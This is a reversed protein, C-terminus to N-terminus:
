QANVVFQYDVSGYNAPTLKAAKGNKDTGDSWDRHTLRVTVLYLGKMGPYAQITFGYRGPCGPCEKATAMMGNGWAMPLKDKALAAEREKDTTFYNIQYMRVNPRINEIVDNIQKYVSNKVGSDTAVKKMSLIGSIFFSGVLTLMALGLLVELISIGQQNRILSKM